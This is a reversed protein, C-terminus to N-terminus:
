VIGLYAAVDVWAWGAVLLVCLGVALGFRWGARQQWIARVSLLASASYMLVLPMLPLHYRSHGFVVTHMGCIFAILLLFFWHLRRDDPPAMVMGFIGTFMAAAYSGLIVAALLVVAPVPLEGFIGRSVGAILERELGWFQLFKIIDRKLTLVPHAKVFDIGYRLARKDRQGQTMQRFSPDAAALVADWSQEGGVGIAAWSRYLPTHEYNGMMFNRGGMTDVAVFTQELRTNRISWPAITLAFAACLLGATLVRWRVSGKGAVLIFLALLPPSLWLVSRTLAALGLLVGAAALYGPTDRRLFRVMALCGLLFLFTFLVETLLLNNYVLLSPYFCYLGAAWLGVRQSFAETALLYVVGVTLLSLVLQVARVALFNGPGFLYYVAAVFAPYLPPRLSIPKGESAFEGREVLGLALHHYHNADHHPDDTYLPLGDFAGLLVLRVAAGAVLIWVLPRATGSRPPAAVSPPLTQLNM